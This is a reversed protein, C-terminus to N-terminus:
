RILEILHLQQLHFYLYRDNDLLEPHLQNVLNISEEINGRQVAERILIRNDLSSLEVDPEIGSEEQFKEAAEKFGEISILGYHFPHHTSHKYAEGNVLYDMILRNLDDQKIYFDKLREEWEKTADRDNYSM